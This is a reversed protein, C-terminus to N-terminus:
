PAGEPGPGAAAFQGWPQGDTLLRASVQLLSAWVEGESRTADLVVVNPLHRAVLRYEERRAELAQRTGEPKRRLLVEAPADFLV